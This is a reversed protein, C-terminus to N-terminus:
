FAYSGGIGWGDRDGLDLEMFVSWQNRFKARAGLAFTMSTDDDEEAFTQVLNISGYPVIDWYNIDRFIKSAIVSAELDTFPGVTMTVIGKEEENEFYHILAARGSVNFPIQNSDEMFLYTGGVGIGFTSIDGVLTDFNIYNVQGFLSLQDSFAAELRLPYLNADGFMDGEYDFIGFTFEMNDVILGDAFYHGSALAVPLCIVFPLVAM